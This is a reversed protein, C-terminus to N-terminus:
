HRKLRRRGKASSGSASGWLGSSSSRAEAQGAAYENARGADREAYARALGSKVLLLAFDLGEFHVYRLLREAEDRDPAGPDDILAVRRDQLLIAAFGAAQPGWSDLCEVDIINGYEGTVNPAHTEPTDIGLMRVRDESGDPLTIVM